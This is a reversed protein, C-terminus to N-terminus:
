DGSCSSCEAWGALLKQVHSGVLSVIGGCASMRILRVWICGEEVVPVVLARCGLPLGQVFLCLVNLTIGFCLPPISM